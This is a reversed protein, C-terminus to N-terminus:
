DWEIWNSYVCASAWRSNSDMALVPTSGELASQALADLIPGLQTVRLLEKKADEGSTLHAGYVDCVGGAGGTSALRVGFPVNGDGQYLSRALHTSTKGGENGAVTNDELGLRV